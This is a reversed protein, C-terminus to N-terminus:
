LLKLIYRIMIYYSGNEKGYDRYSSYDLSWTEGTFAGITTGRGIDGGKFSKLSYSM